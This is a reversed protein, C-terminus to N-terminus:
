KRPWTESVDTTRYNPPVDDVAADRECQRIYGSGRSIHGLDTHIDWVCLAITIIYIIVRVIGYVAYVTHRSVRVCVCVRFLYFSRPNIM